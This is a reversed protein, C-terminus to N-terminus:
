HESWGKDQMIKLGRPSDVPILARHGCVPCSRHPARDFVLWLIVLFIGILNMTLVVLTALAAKACAVTMTRWRRGQKNIPSHCQGCVHTFRQENM